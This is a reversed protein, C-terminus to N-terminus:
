KTYRVLDLYNQGSEERVLGVGPCYYKFETAGGLPAEDKTKLCDSFSGAPTKVGVGLNLVTSQDEAVGPAREQEFVEGVKPEAPMFLGPKANGEGAIWQGGHAVIEGDKYDDVKEGLYLVTGDARQAYYDLTHEVLSGNAYEKVDVITAEVGAITETEDRVRWEVRTEVTGGQEAGEFDMERVSALPVFRNDVVSSHEAPDLVVAGNEDGGCGSAGILFMLVAMALARFLLSRRDLDRHSVGAM